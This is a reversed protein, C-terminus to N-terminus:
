WCSDGRRYLSATMVILPLEVEDALDRDFGGIRGTLLCDADVEADGVDSGEGVSVAV